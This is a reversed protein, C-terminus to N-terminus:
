SPYFLHDNEDTMVLVKIGLSEIFKTAKGLRGEFDNSPFQWGKAKGTDKDCWCALEDLKQKLKPILHYPVYLRAGYGADWRPKLGVVNM